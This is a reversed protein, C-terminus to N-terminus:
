EQYYVRKIRQSVSTFIEYPITDLAGALKFVPNENGFIVATDGEKANADTLDIMCMDMCINGIIPCLSGNVYVSVKGNGAHRNLGDAYGVPIVGIRMASPSVFRRSYSVDEGQRIQRIQTITTRLRHVFRLHQQEKANVGIGYMGIGLRVMDYHAQPFRVTAASNCLHRTIKYDFNQQIFGSMQEYLNIQGYTYGDLAPDDAGYLHSFVSKIHLNPAAKLKTVLFNMDSPEFGLRHMGTDLKLHININDTLFKDLVAFSHVVPELNYQKILETNDEPTMVMIPKEIGHRRLEVGEDVFAVTFYDALNSKQLTYAVEYGGCGYSDAKVMAMLMTGSKLKSKFHRVNDEIASLNIELVSQHTKSSLAQSILNFNMNSAGKILIAKNIFDKRRLNLLFDELTLYFKAQEIHILERYNCFDAGVAILNTVGKNNLLTNIQSYLEVPDNGTQQLDSLIVTKKAKNQSNLYDLAIELSKLDCSYSDNVIISNNIGGKIEFRSELQELTRLRQLLHRKDIGMNLCFIYANIANELSAKDNFPLTIEKELDSLRYTDVSNDGWSILKINYQQAFANIKRTLLPYDDHFIILSCHRFLKLKEEIKQETCSFNIQHADGINTFIGVTPQIINELNEMEDPCSIGAEFVALQDDEELQYVSIPVGIQSNFSKVNCCIKKDNGILKVIWDKTITKGNSGTIACVPLSFKSRHYAALAQLANVTNDVVLFSSDKLTSKPPTQTVFMRIGKNYLDAIYKYGSRNDTEIAFFVTNKVTNLRRSDFLINDISCELCADGIVTGGTLLALTKFTTKDM